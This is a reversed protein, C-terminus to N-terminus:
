EVFGAEPSRTCAIISPPLPIRESAAVVKVSAAMGLGPVGITVATEVDSEDIELEAPDLIDAMSDFRTKELLVTEATEDVTLRTSSGMSSATTQAYQIATVVDSVAAYLRAHGLSAVLVPVGLGAIIGLVTVVILIELLTFGRM